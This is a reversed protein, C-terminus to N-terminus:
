IRSLRSTTYPKEGGKKVKQTHNSRKINDLYASSAKPFKRYERPGLKASKQFTNSFGALQYNLLELNDAQKISSTRVLIVQFSIYDRLLNKM